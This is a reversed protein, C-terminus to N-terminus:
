YGFRPKDDTAGVADALHQAIGDAMAGSDSTVNIQLYDM